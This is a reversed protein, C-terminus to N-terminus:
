LTINLKRKKGTNSSTLTPKLVGGKMREQAEKRRKEKRKRKRKRKRKPSKQEKKAM